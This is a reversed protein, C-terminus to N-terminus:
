DTLVERITTRIDSPEIYADQKIPSPGIVISIVRNGLISEVLSCRMDSGIFIVADYIKLKSIIAMIDNLVEIGSRERVYEWREDDDMLFVFDVGEEKAIEYIENKNGVPFGVLAIREGKRIEGLSELRSIFARDMGVRDATEQQSLGNSRLKIIRKVANLLRDEDILKEGIRVFNLANM